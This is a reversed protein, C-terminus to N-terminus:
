QLLSFLETLSGLVVQFVRELISRGFTSRGLTLNFILSSIIESGSLTELNNLSYKEDIASVSAFLIGGEDDFGISFVSLNCFVKPKRGVSQLSTFFTIIEKLDLFDRKFSIGICAKLYM